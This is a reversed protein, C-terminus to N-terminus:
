RKPTSAGGPSKQGPTSTPQALGLTQLERGIADVRPPRDPLDSPHVIQNIALPQLDLYKEALDQLREPRTLHAWDARLMQIEDRKSQIKDKTKEIQAAFLLTQYSISYAYVASGVLAAVAIVNLYRLVKMM